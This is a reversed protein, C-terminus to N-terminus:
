QPDSSPGIQHPPLGECVWPTSQTELVGDGLLPPATLGRSIANM